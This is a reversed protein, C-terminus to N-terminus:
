LDQPSQGKALMQRHGRGRWWTILVRGIGWLLMSARGGQPEEHRQLLRPFTTYPRPNLDCPFVLQESWFLLPFEKEKLRVRSLTTDPGTSTNADTNISTSTERPGDETKTSFQTYALSERWSPSLCILVHLKPHPPQIASHM